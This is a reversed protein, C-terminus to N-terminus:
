DRSSTEKNTKVNYSKKRTATDKFISVEMCFLLFYTKHFYFIM